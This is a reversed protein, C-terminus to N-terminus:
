FLAWRSRSPLEPRRRVEERSGLVMLATGPQKRADPPLAVEAHLVSYVSHFLHGVLADRDYVLDFRCLWPEFDVHFSAPLSHGQRGGTVFTSAAVLEPTVDFRLM